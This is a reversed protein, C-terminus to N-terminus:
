SINSVLKNYDTENKNSAIELLRSRNDSQKYSTSTSLRYHIEGLKVIKEKNNVYGGDLSDLTSKIFASTYLINDGAQLENLLNDEFRKMGTKISTSEGPINVNFIYVYIFRLIPEILKSFIEDNFKQEIATNKENALTLLNNQILYNILKGFGRNSYVYPIPNNNSYTYIKKNLRNSTCLTDYVYVPPEYYDIGMKSLDEFAQNRNRELNRNDLMYGITKNIHELQGIKNQWESKKSADITAYYNDIITQTLSFSYFNEQKKAFILLVVIIIM